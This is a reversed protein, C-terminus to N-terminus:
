SQKDIYLSLEILLDDSMNEVNEQKSFFRHVKAIRNARTIRAIDEENPIRILTRHWVNSSGRETLNDKYYLTNGVKWCTKTEGSIIAIHERCLSSGYVLVKDGVKIQKKDEMDIQAM